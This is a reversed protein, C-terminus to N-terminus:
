DTYAAQFSLIRDIEDALQALHPGPLDIDEARLIQIDAQQVAARLMSLDIEEQGSPVIILDPGLRAIDEFSLSKWVPGEVLNQGGAAHVLEGLYTSAGWALPTMGPSLILLRPQSTMERVALAQDLVDALDQCRRSVLPHDVEIQIRNLLRDVDDNSALTEAIVNWGHISALEQMSPQVFDQHRQVFVHTPNSRVLGEADFHELDGVVPVDDLDRCFTSRGVIAERLGIECLMRSMAPSMSAIRPGHSEPHTPAQDCSILMMASLLCTIRLM